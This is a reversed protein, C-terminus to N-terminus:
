IRLPQLLLLPVRIRSTISSFQLLPSPPLPIRAGADRMLLSLALCTLSCAAGMCLSVIALFVIASDGTDPFVDWPDVCILAPGCVWIVLLFLLAIRVAPQQMDDM